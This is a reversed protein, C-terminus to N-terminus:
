ISIGSNDIPNLFTAREFYRTGLIRYFWALARVPRSLLPDLVRSDEFANIADQLLGQKQYCYGLFCLAEAYTPVIMLAQKFFYAAEAIQNDQFLEIGYSHQQQEAESDLGLRWHKASLQQMGPPSHLTQEGALM